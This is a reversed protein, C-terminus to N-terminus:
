AKIGNGDQNRCGHIMEVIQILFAYIKLAVNDAYQIIMVKTKKLDVNLIIKEMKVFAPSTKDKIIEVHESKNADAEINSLLM